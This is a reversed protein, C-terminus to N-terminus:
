TDSASGFSHFHYTESANRIIRLGAGVEGGSGFDHFHQSDWANRKIRFGSAGRKWLCTFSPLGLCNKQNQVWGGGERGSGFGHFHYCDWANRTIRSGIVGRGREELSMFIIVTWHM